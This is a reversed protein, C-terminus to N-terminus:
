CRWCREATTLVMFGDETKGAWAGPQICILLARREPGSAVGSASLGIEGPQGNGARLGAGAALADAMATFGGWDRILRAAGIACDYSGRVPAMPDVAHLASFVDSAATCCDSRGWKWRAAMIREVADM